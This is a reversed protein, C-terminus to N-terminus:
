KRLKMRQTSKSHYLHYFHDNIRDTNIGNDKLCKLIHSSTINTNFKSIFLERKKQKTNIPNLANHNIFDLNSSNISKTSIINNKNLDNANSLDSSHEDLSFSSPQEQPGNLTSQSNSEDNMNVMINIVENEMYPMSLSSYFKKLDYLESHMNQILDRNTDDLKIADTLASRNTNSSTTITRIMHVSDLLKENIDDLKNSNISIRDSINDLAIWTNVEFSHWLQFLDPRDNISASKTQNASSFSWDLPNIHANRHLNKNLNKNNFVKSICKNKIFFDEIKNYDTM